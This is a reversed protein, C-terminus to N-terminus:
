NFIPFNLITGPKIDNEDKIFSIGLIYKIQEITPKFVTGYIFPMIENLKYPGSSSVEYPVLPFPCQILMIKWAKEADSKLESLSKPWYMENTIDFAKGTTRATFYKAVSAIGVREEAYKDASLAFMAIQYKHLLPAQSSRSLTVDRIAVNWSGFRPNDSFNISLKLTIDGARGDRCLQYYTDVLQRLLSYQVFGVPGLLPNVGTFGGITITSLGEGMHDIHAQGGISQYTTLRAPKNIEIDNPLVFFTYSQIIKTPKELLMLTFSGINLNSGLGLYGATRGVSFPM